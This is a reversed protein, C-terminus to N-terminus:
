RYGEKKTRNRTEFHYTFQCVHKVTVDLLFTCPFFLVLFIFGRGRFFFFCNVRVADVVDVAFFFRTKMRMSAHCSGSEMPENVIQAHITSDVM